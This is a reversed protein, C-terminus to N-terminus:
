EALSVSDYLKVEQKEHQQLAAVDNAFEVIKELTANTRNFDISSYSKYKTIADGNLDTGCFYKIKISSLNPSTIVAM